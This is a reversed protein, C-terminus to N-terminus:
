VAARGGRGACGWRGPILERDFTTDIVVGPREMQTAAERVTQQTRTKTKVTQTQRELKPEANAYKPARPTQAPLSLMHTICSLAQVACGLGWDGQGVGAACALWGVGESLKLWRRVALGEPGLVPM